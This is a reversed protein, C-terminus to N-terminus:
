GREKKREKKVKFQTSLLDDEKKQENEFGWTGGEFSNALFGL